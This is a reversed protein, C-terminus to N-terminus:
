KEAGTVPEFAVNGLAVFRFPLILADGRKHHEILVHGCIRFFQNFNEFGYFRVAERLLDEEKPPFTINTLSAM